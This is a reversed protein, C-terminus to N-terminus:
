EAYVVEVDNDDHDDDDSDDDLQSQQRATRRTEALGEIRDRAEAQIETRRAEALEAM